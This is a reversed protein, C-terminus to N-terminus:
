PQAAAPLRPRRGRRRLPLRLLRRCLGPRPPSLLLVREGALGLSQLTGAIARARGDWELYTLPGKDTDVGALFTFAARDPDEVARRRLLDVLTPCDTSSPRAQRSLM